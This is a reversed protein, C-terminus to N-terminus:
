IRAGQPTRVVRLDRVMRVANEIRCYYGAICRDERYGLRRYFWRAGVNAARVELAIDFTGATVATEELWEVLRRGIGLGECNPEVALLSLHAATDSFQMIAFGALEGGARATLVVSDCHRIHRAVREPTWSWPLRAEILRKSMHAITMADRPQALRLTVDSITKPSEMADLTRDSHSNYRRIVPTSGLNKTPHINSPLSGM